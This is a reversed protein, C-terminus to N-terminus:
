NTRFKPGQDDPHSINDSTNGYIKIEFQFKWDPRRLVDVDESTGLLELFHRGRVEEDGDQPVMFKM